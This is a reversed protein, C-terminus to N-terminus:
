AGAGDMQPIGDDQTQEMDTEEGDTAGGAQLFRKITQQGQLFPGKRKTSPSPSSHSSRVHRAHPRRASSHQDRGQNAVRNRSDERRVTQEEVVTKQDHDYVFRKGEIVLWDLGLRGKRGEKEEGRLFDLLASRAERTHRTYDNSVGVGQQRLQEKSHLVKEKEEWFSFLAIIPRPRARTTVRHAREVSFVSELRVGAKDIVKTVANKCEVWSENGQKEPIGYFLLNKRRSFNSLENEQRKTGKMERETSLQAVRLGEVQQRLHTVEKAVTEQKAELDDVRRNVIKLEASLNEVSQQIAPVQFKTLYDMAKLLSDIKAEM